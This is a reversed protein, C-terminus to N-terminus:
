ITPKAAAEAIARAIDSRPMFFFRKSEEDLMSLLPRNFRLCIEKLSHNTLALMGVILSLCMDVTYHGHSKTLFFIEIMALLVVIFAKIQVVQCLPRNIRELDLELGKGFMYAGLLTHMTHGSWIMAACSGMVSLSMHVDASGNIGLYDICRDYGLSSPMLTANEVVMNLLILIGQTMLCRNLIVYRARVCLYIAASGIVVVPFLDAFTAWYDSENRTNWNADLLVDPLRFNGGRCAMNSEVWDLYKKGPFYAAIQYVINAVACFGVPVLVAGFRQSRSFPGSKLRLGDSFYRSNYDDDEATLQDDESSSYEAM